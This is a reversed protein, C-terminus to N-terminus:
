QGIVAAVAEAVPMTMAFPRDDDVVLPRQRDSDAVAIDHLLLGRRPGPRNGLLLDRRRRLTRGTGTSGNIKNGAGTVDDL